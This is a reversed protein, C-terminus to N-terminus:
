KRWEERDSASKELADAVRDIAPQKKERVYWGTVASGRVGGGPWVMWDGSKACEFVKELTAATDEPRVVLPVWNQGIIVVVEHSM